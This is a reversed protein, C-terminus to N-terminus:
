LVLLASIAKLRGRARAFDIEAEIRGRQRSATESKTLWIPQLVALVHETSVEDVPLPRLAQVYADSLTQRWQQRHKTTKCRSM